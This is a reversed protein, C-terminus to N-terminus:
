YDPIVMGDARDALLGLTAPSTGNPVIRVSGDCFAFQCVGPHFSGFTWGQDYYGNSIPFGPGAPRTSCQYNHGDFIACDLPVKGWGGNPVNKEGVMFTNSTGDTIEAIRVGKIGLRFAGNVPLGGDYYDRGATGICAAYDGLAGPRSRFTQCWSPQIESESLYNDGPLRRSPCFYTKVNTGVATDTQCGYPEKPDWLRYLNDQEIYPLILVAWTAGFENNRSPPLTGLESEYNMMAVAIQHLNNACTIRSAAERARQVAPLLLGILTSIIAIVVLLEILTFAVRRGRDEFRAM